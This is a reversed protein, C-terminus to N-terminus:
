RNSQRPRLSPSRTRSQRRTTTTRTRRLAPRGPGSRQSNRGCTSRRRRRTRPPDGTAAGSPAPGPPVATPTSSCFGATTSPTTAAPAKGNSIAPRPRGQPWPQLHDRETRSSSCGPGCCYLDRLDVLRALRASPDHQAEDVDAVVAPALMQQIQERLAAPDQAAPTTRDDVAIPRGTTADVMVRRLSSPRLLRIHEASVPGYRDISGPQRSLDLVTSVPVHINVVIQAAVQEPSFTWPPPVPADPEFLVDDDGPRTSLRGGTPLGSKRRHQDDQATGALVLAPLAAFLDARRQEATRHIGAARDALRERRELADMGAAWAMGQEPTLLAGAVAMGDDTPRVWTRRSAIKEAEQREADAPDNQESELRLRTKKVRDRLDSPCLAAGVPLVEAEVARAVEPTSDATGHLLVTAQHRLLTGTQLMSLTLPLADYFRGAEYLWREAALQGIRWSGALELALTRRVQLGQKEARAALASLQELQTAWSRADARLRDSVVDLSGAQALQEPSLADDPSPSSSM